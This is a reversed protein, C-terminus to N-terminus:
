SDVTPQDDSKQISNLIIEAQQQMKSREVLLKWRGGGAQDWLLAARIAGLLFTRIKAANDPNGLHTQNGQVMIRPGLSSITESYIKALSAVINTHTPDFFELKKQTEEIGQMLESYVTSNKILKRELHLINISYRTSEMNKPRGDTGLHNTNLNYQLASLGLQLQDLGGYIDEISDTNDHLLSNVCIPLLQPPCQGKNAIQTVGEICLFLASLSLTRNRLNTDM